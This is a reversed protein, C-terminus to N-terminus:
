KSQRYLTAYADRHRPRLAWNATSHTNRTRGVLISTTPYTPAAGPPPPPMAMVDVDFQAKYLKQVGDTTTPSNYYVPVFPLDPNDLPDM